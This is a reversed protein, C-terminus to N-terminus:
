VESPGAVESNNQVPIDKGHFNFVERVVTRIDGMLEDRTVSRRSSPDSRRSMEVFMGRKVYDLLGYIELESGISHTKVGRKDKAVICYSDVEEMSLAKAIFGKLMTKMEETSLDQETM